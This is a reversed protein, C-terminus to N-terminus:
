VYRDQAKAYFVRIIATWPVTLKEGLYTGDSTYVGQMLQIGWAVEEYIGCWYTSGTNWGLQTITVPWLRKNERSM